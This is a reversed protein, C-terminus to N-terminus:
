KTGGTKSSIVKGKSEKKPEEKPLKAELEKIKTNAKELEKVLDANVIHLDQIQNTLELNAKDDVIVLNGVKQFKLAIKEKPLVSIEEETYIQNVVFDMGDGKTSINALARYHTDKGKAM